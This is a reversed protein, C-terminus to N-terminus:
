YSSDLVHVQTATGLAIEGASQFLGQLYFSSTAGAILPMNFNVTKTGSAPLVGLSLNFRQAGIVLPGVRTPATLYLGPKLGVIVLVRDGPHGSFTLSTTTGERVPSPTTLLHALNPLPHVVSGNFTVFAAGSSGGSGGAGGQVSSGLVDLIAGDDLACGPGGQGPQGGFAPQSGHGGVVSSSYLTATSTLLSLGIGGDIEFPASGADHGEIRCEYLAATSNALFVAASPNIPKFNCNRLVVTDCDTVTATVNFFLAIPENLDEIWVPGRDHELTVILDSSRAGIGRLAAHQNAALNRVTIGLVGVRGGADAQVNLGKGDLTVTEAYIGRRVLVLDGDSAATVAAGITRFNSGPGGAADVVHVAQARPASSLLFVLAIM